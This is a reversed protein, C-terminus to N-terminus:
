KSTGPPYHCVGISLGTEDALKQLEVKWLRVRYSNSGGSDATILLETADPYVQTGMQQWWGRISAVAFAATDRDVGLNVWGENRAPDYVGYPSAKGLEKSPFDHTSAQEPQGKPNWESGANKFQGVPEKKKSDVSIVPQNREQYQKVKANITQFQADRDPHEKGELTKQTAQLSYGMQHLLKAVLTHSVSRGPKVSELEKALKRTSKCTWRLPSEPDGRTEPSVLSELDSLLAPDTETAPKRDAGPRRVGDAEITEPNSMENVGRGVTTPSIGLLDAVREVGGTGFSLAEAGAFLRRQKEDLFPAMAEYRQKIREETMKNVIQEARIM